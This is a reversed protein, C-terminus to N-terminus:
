IITSTQCVDHYICKMKQNIVKTTKAFLNTSTSETKELGILSMKKTITPMMMKMMRMKMKKMNSMKAMMSQIQTEKKKTRRMKMTM